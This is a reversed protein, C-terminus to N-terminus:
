GSASITVLRNYRVYTNLGTPQVRLIAGTNTVYWSVSDVGMDAASGGSIVPGASHFETTHVTIQANPISCPFHITISMGPVAGGVLYSNGSMGEVSIVTDYSFGAHVRPVGSPSLIIAADWVGSTSEAWGATQNLTKQTLLLGSTDCDGSQEVLRLAFCPVGDTSYWKKEAPEFRANWTLCLGRPGYGTNGTCLYLRFTGMAFLNRSSQWFLSYGDANGNGADGGQLTTLYDERAGLKATPANTLGYTMLFDALRIGLTSVDPLAASGVAAATGSVVILEGSETQVFNVSNGGGDTRPDSSIKKPKLVLTVWREYGMNVATANGLYDTALSISTQTSLRCATVRRNSNTGTNTTAPDYYLAMGPSVAQAMALPITTAVALGYVVGRGGTEYGAQGIAQDIISVLGNLEGPQVNQLSFFTRGDM